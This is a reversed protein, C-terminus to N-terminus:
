LRQHGGVGPGAPLGERQEAAGDAVVRLALVRGLPGRLDTPQVGEGCQRASRFLWRRRPTTTGRRYVSSPSPLRDTTSPPMVEIAAIRDNRRSGDTVARAM